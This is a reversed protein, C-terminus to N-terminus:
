DRRLHDHWRPPRHWSPQNDRPPVTPPRGTRLTGILSFKVGNRLAYVREGSIPCRRGYRKTRGNPLQWVLCPLCFEGLTCHVCSHWHRDRRQNCRPCSLRMNSMQNTGGAVLPVIHESTLAQWPAVVPCFHCPILVFIDDPDAGYVERVIRRRFLKGSKRRVRGPAGM